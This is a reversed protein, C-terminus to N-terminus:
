SPARRAPRSSITRVPRFLFPAALIGRRRITFSIRYTKGSELRFEPYPKANKSWSDEGGVGMTFSGMPIFVMGYPDPQSFSASSKRVGVLEGQTRPNGCSALLIVVSFVFLLKKM